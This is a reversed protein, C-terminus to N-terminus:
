SLVYIRDILIVKEPSHALVLIHFIFCEISSQIRLMPIAM